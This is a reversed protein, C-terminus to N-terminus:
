ASRMATDISQRPVGYFRCDRRAEIMARADAYGSIQDMPEMNMGVHKAGCSMSTNAMMPESRALQLRTCHHVTQRQQVECGARFEPAL